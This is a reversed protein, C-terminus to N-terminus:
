QAALAVALQALLWTEGNATESSARASGGSRPLWWRVTVRPPPARRRAARLRRSRAASFLRSSVLISSSLRSAAFRRSDVSRPLADLTLAALRCSQHTETQPRALRTVKTDQLQIPSTEERGRKEELLELVCTDFSRGVGIALPINPYCVVWFIYFRKPLMGSLGSILGAFIGPARSSNVEDCRSLRSVLTNGACLSTRVFQSCNRFRQEKECAIDIGPCTNVGGFIFDARKNVATNIISGLKTLSSQRMVNSPSKM